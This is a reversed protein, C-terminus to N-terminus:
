GVRVTGGSCHVGSQKKKEGRDQRGSGGGERHGGVAVIGAVSGSRRRKLGDGPSAVRHPGQRLGLAVLWDRHDQAASDVPQVLREDEPEGVSSGFVSRDDVAGRLTLGGDEGGCHGDRSPALEGLNGFPGRLGGFGVEPHGVHGFTHFAEM